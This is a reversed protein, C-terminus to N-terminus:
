KRIKETVSQGVLTFLYSQLTFPVLGFLALLFMGLIYQYVQSVGQSVRPDDTSVVSLYYINFQENIVNSFIASLGPHTAGAIISCIFGWFFYCRKGQTYEFLRGYVSGKYQKQEQENYGFTGTFM